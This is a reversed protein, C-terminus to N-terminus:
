DVSEMGDVDHWETPFNYSEINESEVEGIVINEPETNESEINETNTKEDSNSSQFPANLISNRSSGFDYGGFRPIGSM